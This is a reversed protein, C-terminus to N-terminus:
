GARRARGGLRPAARQSPCNTVCGELAAAQPRSRRVFTGAAFFLVFATLLALVVLTVSLADRRWGVASRRALGAVLLLGFLAALSILLSEREMAPVTAAHVRLRRVGVLPWSGRRSGIAVRALGVLLSEVGDRAAM